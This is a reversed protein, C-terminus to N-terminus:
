LEDNLPDSVKETVPPGFDCREILKCVMRTDISYLFREIEKFVVDFSDSCSDGLIWNFKDCIYKKAEVNRKQFKEDKPMQRVFETVELCSQCKQSSDSTVNVIPDHCPELILCYNEPNKSLLSMTMNVVVDCLEKDMDMQCYDVLNDKFSSMDPLLGFTTAYNMNSMLSTCAECIDANQGIGLLDM